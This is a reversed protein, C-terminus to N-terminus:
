PTTPESGFLSLLDALASLSLGAAVDAPMLSWDQPFKDEVQSEPLFLREGNPQDLRLFKGGPNSVLGFLLQNSTRQVVHTQYGPAITKSPNLIDALLEERSRGYVHALDPGFSQGLGQYTHCQACRQQFIRLGNAPTGKLKLIVPYREVLDSEPLPGFLRVARAAINRDRHNRLLNIQVETLANRYITGSELAEMLAHTRDFQELMRAIIQGQVSGPLRPWRQVFRTTVQPDPSHALADVAALQVVEPEGPSLMALIWDGAERMTYGSVGLFRIADARVAATKGAIAADLARRGLLRSEDTSTGGVFTRGTAQLGEGIDRALILTDALGMGSNELSGVLNDLALQEQTGAMWALTRLFTWGGPDQRLRNNGCLQRLVEAAAGSHAGTLVASQMWPDAPAPRLTNALLTSVASHNVDGLTLAVQLRVRPSADRSAVALQGILQPSATGDKVFQETLAAAAERISVDKDQFARVLHAEELADVAALLHLAHLKATSNWNWRFERTVTRYSERDNREFILRSATDRVWGNNSELLKILAMTSLASLHPAKTPDQGTPLLRWIRGREEPTRLDARGLDALCLSGDPAAIIQIPRFTPDRSALFESTRRAGPRRLQPILGASQLEWQSVIRLEPDTIFLAETFETQFTMGRYVLLSSPRAFGNTGYNASLLSGSAEATTRAAKLPYVRLDPGALNVTLGPWRYLPNRAARIPDAVTFLVAQGGAATYRRGTNDLGLGRSNGGAELRVELTRPNFSFDSGDITVPEVAPIAVCTLSGTLGNCAVHVRNDLGWALHTIGAGATIGDPSLGNFIVNRVDAKGDGNTDALFIIENGSAVFTGAGYCFLATPSPVNDAYVVVQEFRGDGDADQLRKIRGNNGNLGGEAVFLRGDADFRIAVPNVVDPAAAALQLRIGTRVQMGGLTIPARNTPASNTAASEVNNTPALTTAVENTAAPKATAPPPSVTEDAAAFLAQASLLVMLQLWYRTM